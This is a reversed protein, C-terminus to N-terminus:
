SAPVLRLLKGNNDDTLIYLNGDPGTRVDRLREGRDKLLIEQNTVKNDKLTLRRLSREALSSIFLNGQWEKFKDGTYLTMGAPAISPVYHTVPQAMGDAETYPSIIAGSYDIGYTIAPWGYNVGAEIINLEDGGKPGHEHSWITGDPAQLMAQPNRHGLSYIEPKADKNKVYPNDQPVSGDKNIRLIKGFHNDLTQAQDRYSYGDGVSIVITGDTLEAMRAGYHHATTKAPSSTLITKVDTLEGDKLTASLLKLYNENGTGSAYSVYIRQNNVFDSDLMVDQLGGQGKVLAKPMGKVVARDTGDASIILLDGAKETVIFDGNPLFDISWPYKLENTIEEVKYDQAMVSATCTIFLAIITNKMTRNM